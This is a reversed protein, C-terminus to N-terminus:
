VSYLFDDKDEPSLRRRKSEHRDEARAKPPPNSEAERRAKNRAEQEAIIDKFSHSSRSFFETPDQSAKGGTGSNSRTWTPKAFVSRKAPKRAPAEAPIQDSM